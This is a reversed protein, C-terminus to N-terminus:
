FHQKLIKMLERTPMKVEPDTSNWARSYTVSFVCNIKDETTSSVAWTEGTNEDYVKFSFMVNARSENLARRLAKETSEPSHTILEDEFFGDRRLLEKQVWIRFIDDQEGKM